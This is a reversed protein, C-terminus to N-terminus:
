LLEIDFIWNDMTYKELYEFPMLFYGRDGWVPGFSNRTIFQKKNIDYGVLTVAHGGILEEWEGPMSLVARGPLELDYFSNFVHMSIVVPYDDSLAYLCDDLTKVRYYKKIIRNKADLYSEVSPTNAFKDVIYPWLLESCVGWQALSKVGDRVYAGVDENVWNDLLRANYYVFLRSLDVFREPYSKNVMLEFAGVIAQGVCSGLHLQDEVASAWTRLDVTSKLKSSSSRVYLYDRNDYPDARVKFVSGPIYM